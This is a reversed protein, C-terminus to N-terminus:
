TAKARGQLPITRSHANLRHIFVPAPPQLLEHVGFELAVLSSQAPSQLVAVPGKYALHQAPLARDGLLAPM